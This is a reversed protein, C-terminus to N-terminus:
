FYDEMSKSTTRKNYTEKGEVQALSVPFKLMSKQIKEKPMLSRKTGTMLHQMRCLVPYAKSKNLDLLKKGQDKYGGEWLHEM